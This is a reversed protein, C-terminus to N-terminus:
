LRTTNILSTYRGDAYIKFNKINKNIVAFIEEHFLFAYPYERAIIEQAEKYIKKRKAEETTMQGKELM